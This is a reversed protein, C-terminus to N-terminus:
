QKEIVIGYKSAKYDIKQQLGYYSWNRLLFEAESTEEKTKDKAESLNVIVLKGVKYKICLHILNATYKHIRSSVYSTESDKLKEIGKIKKQIGKGGKNFRCAAQTRKLSAQIALRRHLFEDKNGINIIKDGMQLVLPTEIDLKVYAIKKPDLKINLKDFQFVALLFLKTKGQKKVIQISSDCLKYENELSREWIIRNGSLDKGFNTRFNLGFLTFTYNNSKDSKQIKCLAAAPIPIPIDSKYSRLSRTGNFYDKKEKNFSSVIQSNLCTLIATPIEGKFKSSLLQYTTNMKSTNLIGAEDKGINALKVKTGDTLYFLDRIQEQNFHHSAILNAAKFCIDRYKFLTKYANKFEEGEYNDLQLEIKRTITIKKSEAM